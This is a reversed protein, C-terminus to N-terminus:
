ILLKVTRRLLVGSADKAEANHDRASQKDAFWALRIARRCLEGISAGTKLSQQQLVDAMEQDVDFHLRITKPM